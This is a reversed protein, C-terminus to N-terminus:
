PFCAPAPDWLGRARNLGKRYWCRQMRSEPDCLPFSGEYKGQQRVELGLAGTM